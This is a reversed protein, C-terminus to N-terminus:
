AAERLDRAYHGFYILNDANCPEFFSRPYQRFLRAKNTEVRVIVTGPHTHSPPQDLTAWLVAGPKLLHSDVGTKVRLAMLRIPRTM